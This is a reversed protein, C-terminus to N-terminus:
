LEPRVQKGEIDVVTKGTLLKIAGRLHGLNYAYENWCTQAFEKGTLFMCSGQCLQLVPCHSCEDRWSWHQSSKIRVNELDDMHGSLHKRELGVNQCTLVNGKLDVAIDDDRDMGCKQGLTDSDKKFMLSGYFENIKDVTTFVGLLPQNGETIGKFVKEELDELGSYDFKGTKTNMATDIDYAEVIGEAGVPVNEDNFKDKFWNVTEDFDKTNEKTWVISFCFGLKGQANLELLQQILKFKKSNNLPDPGRLHYGPGDHSMTVAMKYKKFFDIKEQTILSGNTVISFEVDEPCRKKLFPILKKIKKWYLLPEGGWVEVLSCYQLDLRDDLKAMFEELDDDGTVTSEPVFSAQSCYECSYNCKLGLQIKLRMPEKVKKGPNFFPHIPDVSHMHNHDKPEEVYWKNVKKIGVPNKAYMDQGQENTLKSLHPKYYLKSGDECHLTYTLDKDAM